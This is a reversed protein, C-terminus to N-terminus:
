IIFIIAYGFRVLLYVVLSLISEEESPAWISKITEIRVSDTEESDENESTFFCIRNPSKKSALWIREWQGISKRWLVWGQLPIYGYSPSRQM